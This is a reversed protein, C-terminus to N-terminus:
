PFKHKVWEVDQSIAFSSYLFFGLFFVPQSYIYM